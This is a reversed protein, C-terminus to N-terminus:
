LMSENTAGFGDAGTGSMMSMLADEIFVSLLVTLTKMVGAEVEVKGTM